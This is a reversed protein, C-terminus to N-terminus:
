AISGHDAPLVRFARGGARRLRRFRREDLTLPGPKELLGSPLGVKGIDHVLGCLHARQQEEASLSDLQMDIM